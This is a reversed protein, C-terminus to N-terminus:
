CREVNSVGPPQFEEEAPSHLSQKPCCESSRPARLVPLKAGSGSRQEVGFQGRQRMGNLLELILQTTEEDPALAPQRM